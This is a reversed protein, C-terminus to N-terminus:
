QAGKAAQTAKCKDCRFLFRHRPKFPERCSMCPRKTFIRLHPAVPRSDHGARSPREKRAPDAPAM